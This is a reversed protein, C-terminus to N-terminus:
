RKIKRYRDHKNTKLFGRVVSSLVLLFGLVVLSSGMRWLLNDFFLIIAAFLFLAVFILGTIIIAFGWRKEVLQPEIEEWYNDWVEKRPEKYKLSNALNQTMQQRELEDRWESHTELLEEFEAKEEPSLEDDLYAMMKLAVDSESEPTNTM